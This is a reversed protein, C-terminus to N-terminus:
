RGIERPQVPEDASEDEDDRDEDQHDDSLAAAHRAVVDELGTTEAAAITQQGRLHRDRWVAM